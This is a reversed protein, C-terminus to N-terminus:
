APAQYRVPTAAVPTRLKALARVEREIDTIIVDLDPVLGPDAQLGLTLGGNYSFISLGIGITGGTPVWPVVGLLKSGAFYVPRAPGAVNTIVATARSTFVDVLRQEIASPTRGVAGLLGYSLSGEPSGKIEKMADHVLALRQASGSEGVPLAVSVLGFRNGLERPLPEDSPRLDFPVIAHIADIVGGNGALRRRLAGATAALLVDNVTTGTAHGIAKIGALPIPDSWAVRRTAAPHGRLDTKTDPPALLLKALVRADTAARAALDGLESGPHALLELGESLGAEALRAGAQVPGTVAQFVSRRAGAKTPRPEVEPREDTLSLLVRALAVGDAICHHTRWLVATGPGYGDLVYIDWLPKSRDLPTSTLDAVREQLARRDGPAPLAHHHIHRDLDFGPDDEWWPHRPPMGGEVVRQGFRPFQEVLRERYITRAEDFDIPEAFWMVSNVVMLNTPRDMHFWAADANSMRQKGM